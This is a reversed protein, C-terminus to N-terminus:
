ISLFVALVHVVARAVVVLPTLKLLAASDGWLTFVLLKRATAHHEVLFRFTKREEYVSADETVLLHEIANKPLHIQRFGLRHDVTVAMVPAKATKPAGLLRPNALVIRM